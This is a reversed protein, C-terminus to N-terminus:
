GAANRNQRERDKRRNAVRLWITLIPLLLVVGIVASVFGGFGFIVGGDGIGLWVSFILWGVVAGSLGLLLSVGWSKPGSMHRFADRPMLWRGFVGALFGVILASIV